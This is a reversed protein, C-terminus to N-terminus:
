NFLCSFSGSEYKGMEATRITKSAVCLAASWGPLQLDEPSLVTKDAMDGSVETFGAFPHISM